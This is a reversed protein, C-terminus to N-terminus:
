RTVWGKSLVHGADDLRVRYTFASPRGPITSHFRLDVFEVVAAGGEKRFRTVPFRAFWLVKQVEPLNRAALIQPNVPAEPYFRYELTREQGAAGSERESLDMRLEYVGRPTGIMGDWQWPSPPLPLAALSQVELHQSAAFQEVRALATRHGLVTAGFYGAFVVLGARCWAARSIGFGWGGALPGFFLGALFLSIMLATLASIRVGVGQSVGTILLVAFICILLTRVARRFFGERREYVGALLQPLLFIASLTLDIIFILDWAPRAWSLPSWIMTGFNTVLDLFIHSLLGIVYVLTLMGFSPCEWNRRRVFWQTLAALGLAYAPLPLLSHTLSRHWTIVLLPDRSLIDRIVDSDPFIAGIMAAWTLVRERSAPHNTLLDDGRFIAKGILAGAIGHTITDM